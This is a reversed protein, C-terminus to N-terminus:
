RSFPDPEPDTVVIVLPGVLADFAKTGRVTKEFDGRLQALGNLRANLFVQQLHRQASFGFGGEVHDAAHFALGDDEPGFFSFEFERDVISGFVFFEDVIKLLGLGFRARLM